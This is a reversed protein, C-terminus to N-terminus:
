LIYYAIVDKFTIPNLRRVRKCFAQTEYIHQAKQKTWNLQTKLLNLSKSIKRNKIIVRYKSSYWTNSSPIDLLVRTLPQISYHRREKLCYKISTQTDVLVSLRARSFPFPREQAILTCDMTPVHIYPIHPSAHNFNTARLFLFFPLM